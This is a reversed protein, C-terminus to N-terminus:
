IMPRIVVSFARDRDPETTGNLRGDADLRLANIEALAGTMASEDVLYGAVGIPEFARVIESPEYDRTVFPVWVGDIGVDRTRQNLSELLSDRPTRATLYGFVATDPGIRDVRYTSRMSEAALQGPAVPEEGGLAAYTLVCSEYRLSLVRSILGAEGMAIAITPVDTAALMELMAVNDLPSTAMGVVKVVDAGSAALRAHLGGIDSPMGIFDHSSIILKTNKRDGILDVADHEIDVYEVGLDIALLLPAVREREPGRFEGGEREARNTVIVPCPRDTLLRRLDYEAMLDLRLEAIDAVTSVDLLARRAEDTTEVGLAVGIM